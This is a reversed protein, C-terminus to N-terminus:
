DRPARTVGIPDRPCAARCHGAVRSIFSCGRPYKSITDNFPGTLTLTEGTGQDMLNLQNCEKLCIVVSDDLIQGAKLPVCKDGIKLEAYNSRIVLSDAFSLNPGAGAFLGVLVCNYSACAREDNDAEM